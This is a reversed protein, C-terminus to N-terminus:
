LGQLFHMSSNCLFVSESYLVSSKFAVIKGKTALIVIEILEAKSGALV